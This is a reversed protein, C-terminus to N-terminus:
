HTFKITEDRWTEGDRTEESPLWLQNSRREWWWLWRWRRKMFNPWYIINKPRMITIQAIYSINELASLSRHESGNWPTDVTQHMFQDSQTEMATFLLVNTL